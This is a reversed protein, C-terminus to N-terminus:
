LIHETVTFSNDSFVNSSVMDSESLSPTGSSTSDDSSSAVTLLWEALGELLDLDYTAWILRGLLDTVIWWGWLKHYYTRMM